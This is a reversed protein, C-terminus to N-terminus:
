FKDSVFFFKSNEFSLEYKISKIIKKLSLLQLNFKIPLILPSLYISHVELNVSYSVEQPLKSEFPPLSVVFTIPNLLHYVNITSFLHQGKEM